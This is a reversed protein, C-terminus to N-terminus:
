PVAGETLLFDHIAASSVDKATFADGIARALIFTLR